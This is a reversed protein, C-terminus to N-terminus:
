ILVWAAARLVAHIFTHVTPGGISVLLRWVLWVAVARGPRQLTWEVYRCVATPILALRYWWVGLSRLLGRRSKTWAGRRAYSALQAMSPPPDTLLSPPVFYARLRGLAAFIRDRWAVPPPQLTSVEDGTEAPGAGWPTDKRDGSSHLPSGQRTTTTM